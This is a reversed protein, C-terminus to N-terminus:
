DISEKIIKIIYEMEKTSYRQDIPLPIIYEATRHECSVSEVKNLVGEWYKAVFVGKDILDQRINKDTMIFMPYVM